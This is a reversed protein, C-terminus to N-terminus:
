RLAAPVDLYLFGVVGWEWSSPRTKRGRADQWHRSKTSYYATSPVNVGFGVVGEGVAGSIGVDIGVDMWAWVERVSSGESSM